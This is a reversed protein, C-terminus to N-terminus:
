IAGMLHSAAYYVAFGAGLYVLTAVISRLSFRAMGVVGHGSTCGNALRTGVGVLMGALALLGLDGSVHADPAGRIAVALAPVAILAAVFPLYETFARRGGNGEILGGFIGSAGLVRGNGLLLLAAAAGIMLGGILGYLWDVPITVLTMAPDTGPFEDQEQIFAQILDNCYIYFCLVPHEM